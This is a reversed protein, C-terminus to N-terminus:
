GHVLRHLVTKGFEIGIIRGEIRAIRTDSAKPEETSVASLIDEWRRMEQEMESYAKEIESQSTM